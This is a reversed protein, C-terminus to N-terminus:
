VWTSSCDADPCILVFSVMDAGGPWRGSSKSETPTPHSGLIMVTALMEHSEKSCASQSVRVSIM